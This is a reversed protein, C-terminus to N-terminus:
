YWSACMGCWTVDHCVSRSRSLHLTAFIYLLTWANHRHRRDITRVSMWLYCMHGAVVCFHALQKEAPLGAMCGQSFIHRKCTEGDPGKKRPRKVATDHGIKAVLPEDQLIKRASCSPEVGKWTKRNKLIEGVNEFYNSAYKRWIERYFSSKRFKQFNKKGSNRM